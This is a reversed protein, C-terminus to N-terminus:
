PAVVNVSDAAGGNEGISGFNPPATTLLSMATEVSGVSWVFSMKYAATPDTNASGGLRTGCVGATKPLPTQSEVFPPWVQFFRISEVTKGKVVLGDWFIGALLRENESMAMSGVLGFM